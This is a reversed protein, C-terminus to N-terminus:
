EGKRGAVCLGGCEGAYFGRLGGERYVTRVCQVLGSDRTEVQLRCKVLETPCLVACQVGGAVAGAVLVQGYSPKHGSRCDGQMMLQPTHTHPPRSLVLTFSGGISGWGCVCCFSQNSARASVAMAENYSSFVVANVLSATLVPSSMGKFLAQPGEARLLQRVCDVPGRYSSTQMRVKVIRM